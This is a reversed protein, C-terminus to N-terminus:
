KHSSRITLNGLQDISGVHKNQKDTLTIMFQKPTAELGIVVDVIQGSSNRHLTSATLGLARLTLAYTKSKQFFAKQLYYLQWLLRKQSEIVPLAAAYDRDKAFILYGWREPLHMNIVGQPSWTWNHEPLPRGNAGRMKRYVGDKNEYAWQVRSFNIRWFDGQAPLKTKGWLQLAAFPIAIEVTWSTDLDDGQNLTGQLAVQHQLGKADWTIVANGGSNYPKPMFLDLLTNLTNIEFEFYNRAQNGPDIFVEFDNDHFVITDRQKLHGTLHPETLLAGIYLYQKDWCLKVKTPLIMASKGKRVGKLISSGLIDGFKDSFPVEQWAPESLNGDIHIVSNTYYCTYSKPATLLGAPIKWKAAATVIPNESKVQATVNLSCFCSVFLTLATILSFVNWRTRGQWTAPLQVVSANEKPIHGM